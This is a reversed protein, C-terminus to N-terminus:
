KINYKIMYIKVDYELELADCMNRTVKEIM